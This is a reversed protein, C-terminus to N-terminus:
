GPLHREMVLVDLGHNTARTCPTWGLQAYLGGDLSETQLYLTQVGFDPALKVVQEVLSTGYRRGRLHKAVYLGGLWHKKDPFARAMERYKLQVAGVCEDQELAVLMFPIKDRNTYGLVRDKAAEISDGQVLYGWEDFYWRSVIDITDPRDALFQFELSM